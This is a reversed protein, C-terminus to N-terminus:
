AARAAVLSRVTTSLEALDVPKVMHGDFGSALIRVRDEVRGYATLALLPLRTSLRRAQERNRIERAFFFGDHVPMEIDAIIADPQNGDLLNLAAQVSSEAYVTAGLSGLLNTLAKCTETDDDVVLLILGDLRPAIEQTAGVTPPRGPELPQAAAPPLPLRVIFTSGMGIGDSHATVTGGHLAILDKVISLGLGLGLGRAGRGAEQWFRDFVSPLSSPAIGQGNDTVVIEAHSNVRELRVQVKGGKPTFKIANSVLNGVVQELRRPDGAILRVSTDIVDVLAISKADAAVRMSDVASKVVQSLATAQVDLRLRGSESRSVDLLDEILRAQTRAARDIARARQRSDENLNRDAILINATLIISNLPNRLEHSVTALFNDKAQNAEEVRALAGTFQRSAGDIERLGWYSLVVAVMGCLSPVLLFILADQNKEKSTRRALLRDEEDIIEDLMNSAAQNQADLQGLRIVAAPNLNPQSMLTRIAGIWAGKVNSVGLLRKSQAPNDARSDSIEALTATLRRDANRLDILYKKDSTLWYSRIAVAMDRLDLQADKTRRIVRDTHEVWGVSAVQANVRWLVIAALLAM